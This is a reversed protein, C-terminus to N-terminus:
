EGGFPSQQKRQREWEQEAEIQPASYGGQQERQRQWEREAEVLAPNVQGYTEQDQGSPLFARGPLLMGFIITGVIVIAAAMAVIYPAAVFARGPAQAQTM